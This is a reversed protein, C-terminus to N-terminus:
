YSKALNCPKTYNWMNQTDLIQRITAYYEWMARQVFSVKTVMGYTVGIYLQRRLLFFIGRTMVLLSKIEL